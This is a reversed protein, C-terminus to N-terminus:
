IAADHLADLLTLTDAPGLCGDTVSVGYALPRGPLLPQSGAHLHSEIMVGMIPQRDRAIQGAVALGVPLQLHYDGGSNGHGCDVLVRPLLGRSRLEDVVPTVTATEYNPRRGGRLVLHTAPNGASTGIAARGDDGISLFRHPSGAAIMANVAAVTTGDTSNKFGVPCPLASAMVRHVQSEVTRAGIAAWSVLDSLYAPVTTDIFETAVPIGRTNIAVFLERSLRLGEDIRGSGNLGPDNLLGKWGLCTRAKEVYTRMVLLLRDDFRTRIDNLWDAYELAATVDHISCPGLIVLLRGDAGTMTATIAARAAAVHSAVGPTLPLATILDGPPSLEISPPPLTKHGPM